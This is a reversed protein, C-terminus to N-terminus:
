RRIWVWEGEAYDDYGDTYGESYDAHWLNAMEDDTLAHFQESLADAKGMEYGWGYANAGEELLETAMPHERRYILESPRHATTM